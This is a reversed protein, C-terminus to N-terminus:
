GVFIERFNEAHHDHKPQLMSNCSLAVLTVPTANFSLVAVMRLAPLPVGFAIARM